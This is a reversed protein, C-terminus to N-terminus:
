AVVFQSEEIASKEGCCPEISVIDGGFPGHRDISFNCRSRPMRFPNRAIDGPAIDVFLASKVIGNHDSRLGDDGVIWLEVDSEVGWFALREADDDISLQSDGERGFDEISRRM